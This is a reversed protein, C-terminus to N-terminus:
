RNLTNRDAAPGTRLAPLLNTVLIDAELLHEVAHALGLFLLGIEGRLLTTKIRRAVYRDREALLRRSQDDERVAVGSDELPTGAALADKLLRYERRLLQPDETGMLKAGRQMLELLLQHNKSGQAAVEKIIDVERGCVPLGDQYLRVSAYSLDLAKLRRRIEAWVDHIAKRHQEWKALGYRQVYEERVRELLSGLDRETHIIPVLILTRM